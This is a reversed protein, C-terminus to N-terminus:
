NIALFLCAAGAGSSGRVERTIVPRKADIM